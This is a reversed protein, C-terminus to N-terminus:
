PLEVQLTIGIVSELADSFDDDLPVRIMIGPRVRGTGVDVNLGLQHASAESFRRLDENSVLWRGMLGLGIRGGGADYSGFLGYDLLTANDEDSETPLVLTLGGRAHLTFAPALPRELVLAGSLPVIRPIFADSRNYDAFAGLVQAADDGDDPTLPLRAGLEVRVADSALLELVLLPNGLASGSEDRFPGRDADVYAFPLEFLLKAHETIPLRGSLYWASSLTSVDARDFRPHLVELWLGKEPTPNMLFTQAPAPAAALITALTAGLLSFRRKTM